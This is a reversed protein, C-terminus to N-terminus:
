CFLLLVTHSQVDSAACLVTLLYVRVLLVGQMVPCSQIVITCGIDQWGNSLM